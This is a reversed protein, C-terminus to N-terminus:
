RDIWRDRAYPGALINLFTAPLALLCERFFGGLGEVYKGELFRIRALGTHDLLLGGGIFLVPITAMYFVAVSADGRGVYRTAICSILGAALGLVVLGVSLKNHWGAMLWVSILSLAVVLSVYPHAMNGIFFLLGLSVIITGLM